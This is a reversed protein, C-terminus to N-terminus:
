NNKQLKQIQEKTLDTLAAVDDISMKKQLLRLAFLNREEMRGKMLGETIGESRGKLLGEMLGESRGESRGERQECSAMDRLFNNHRLSERYTEMETSTLQKIEAKARVKPKAAAM